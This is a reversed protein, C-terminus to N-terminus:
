ATIEVLTMWSQAASLTSSDNYNVYVTGENGSTNNHLAIETSYTISSTTAPSDLYEVRSRGCHNGYTNTNFIHYGFDYPGNNNTPPTYIVQTGKKIRIGHFIVSGSSNNHYISHEFSVMIKNSASRPTISAQLGTSVYTTSNSSVQGTHVVRVVQVIGGMANSQLGDQPEIRDVKITSM